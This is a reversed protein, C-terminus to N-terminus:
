KHYIQTWRLHATYWRPVVEGPIMGMGASDVPPVDPYYNGTKPHAYEHNVSIPEGPYWLCVKSTNVPKDAGIEWAIRAVHGDQFLANATFDAHRWALTNDYQTPYSWDGGRLPDTNLNYVYSWDADAVLLRQATYRDSDDFHRPRPDDDDSFGRQWSQGGASLPVGIGYSYDIGYADELGPYLVQHYRGRASNLPSPRPDEPCYAVQVDPILRLEVLVDVWTYRKPSGGDDWLPYYRYDDHATRLAIGIDKEQAACQTAMAQRRALNLPTVTIALLLAIIGIVVLLEALTFAGRGGGTQRLPLRGNRMKHKLRAPCWRDATWVGRLHFACISRM